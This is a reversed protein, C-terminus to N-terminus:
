KLSSRRKSIEFDEDRLKLLKDLESKYQAIPMGQELRDTLEMLRQDFQEMAMVLHVGSVTDTYGAIEAFALHLYHDISGQNKQGTWQMVEQKFSENSLLSARFQDENEFNHRQILIVFLNTIFAHRFMHACVKEGIGAVKRLHAVEQSLTTAKLPKGTTESVFFYDHDNKTGISRNIIRKRYLRIYGKLDSLLQKHVPVFRHADSGQKFTPIRLMPESMNDAKLVDSVRIEAIEGRRAGTGELLSVLCLRRSQVFRSGDNWVAARLKNTNEKSIKDRAGQREGESFSHHHWYQETKLLKGSNHKINVEKKTARIVGDESVFKEDDFFFGVFSLFDLCNRGVATITSENKKRLTPDYVDREARLNNIFMTFHSDTLDQFDCNNQYAFRILQSISSAYTGMTGGNSGRRSLGQKGGRGKRDRLSLMYLNAILCPSKDPWVIFPMNSGDRTTITGLSYHSYLDLEKVPRFLQKNNIM